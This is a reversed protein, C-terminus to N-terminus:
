APEAIISCTVATKSRIAKSLSVAQTTHMSSEVVVFGGDTMLKAAEEPTRLLILHDPM